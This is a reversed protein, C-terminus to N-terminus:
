LCRSPREVPTVACGSPWNTSPSGSRSTACRVDCAVGRVVYGAEVLSGIASLVDPLRAGNGTLDTAPRSPLELFLEADRLRQALLGEDVDHEPRLEAAVRQALKPRSTPTLRQLIRIPVEAALADLRDLHGLRELLSEAYRGDQTQRETLGLGAAWSTLAEGRDPLRLDLNWEGFSGVRLLVGDRATAHEHVIRAMPDTLPLPLPLDRFVLRVVHGSRINLDGPQPLSVSTRGETFTVLTSGSAGRVFSGHIGPPGYSYSPRVRQQTSGFVHSRRGSRDRDFGAVALASEVRDFLDGAAAVMLDPRRSGASMEAWTRLPRLDEPHDLAEHPIGVVPMGPVGANTRARVNWFTVLADFGPRKPLVWVTPWAVSGLGINMQRQGLALPSTARGASTQGALLAPIYADGAATSTEFRRLWHPMDEDPIEGWLARTIRRLRANPARPILLEPPRRAASSEPLLRLVHVEDDDFGEYMPQAQPFRRRAGAQARDGLAPHLWVDDVPRVELLHSWDRVRGTSDAGILLCGAGNWVTACRRMVDDLADLDGQPLVFAWEPGRAMYLFRHQRNLHDNFVPASGV